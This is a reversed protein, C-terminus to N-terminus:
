DGSGDGYVSVVIEAGFFVETGVRYLRYGQIAKINFDDCAGSLAYQGPAGRAALLAARVSSSGTRRLYEDLLRQGEADDAHSTLVRCTVEVQDFGGFTGNPDLTIEGAYFVPPTIADPVYGFCNLKEGSSAVVGTCAAALRTRVLQIDM